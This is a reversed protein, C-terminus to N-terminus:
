ISCILDVLLPFTSFGDTAQLHGGNEVKHFDAKLRKSMEEAQYVTIYPDNTSHVVSIRTSNVIVKEHDVPVDFFTKHEPTLDWFDWGSVLLLRDIKISSNQLLKLALVAGLSHGVISTEEDIVFEDQISTTWSDLTPNDKDKLQPIHVEYGLKKAVEKLYPYWNDAPTGFWGHAILLKKM